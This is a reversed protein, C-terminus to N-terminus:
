SYGSLGSGSNFGQNVYGGSGYGTGSYGYGQDLGANWQPDGSYDTNQNYSWQQGQTDYQQQYTNSQPLHQAGYQGPIVNQLKEQQPVSPDLIVEQPTKPGVWRACANSGLM